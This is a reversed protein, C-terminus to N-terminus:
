GDHAGPETRRGRSRGPARRIFHKKTVVGKLFNNLKAYEASYNEKLIEKPIVLMAYLAM